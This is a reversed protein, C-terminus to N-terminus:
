RSPPGQIDYVKTNFEVRCYPNAIRPYDNTAIEQGEVKLPDTWSFEM